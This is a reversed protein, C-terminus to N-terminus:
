NAVGGPTVAAVNEFFDRRCSEYQPHWGLEEKIKENSTGRARV